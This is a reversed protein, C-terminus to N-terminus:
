HKDEIIQAIENLEEFLAHEKIKLAGLEFTIETERRKAEGYSLVKKNNQVENASSASAIDAVSVAAPSPIPKPEVPYTQAQPEPEYDAALQYEEQTQKEAYFTQTKPEFDFDSLHKKKKVQREARDILALKQAFRTLASRNVHIGLEVCRTYVNEIHQYNHSRVLRKVIDIKEM